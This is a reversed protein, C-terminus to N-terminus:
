TFSDDVDQESQQKLHKMNILFLKLQLVLHLTSYFIHNISVLLQIPIVTKKKLKNLISIMKKRNEEFFIVFLYYYFMSYLMCSWVSQCFNSISWQSYRSLVSQHSTLGVYNKDSNSILVPINMNTFVKYFVKYYYQQTVTSRSSFVSQSSPIWFFIFILFQSITFLTRYISKFEDFHLNDLVNNKNVYESLKTDSSLVNKTKKKYRSAKSVYVRNQFM